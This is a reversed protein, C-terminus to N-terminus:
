QKPEPTNATVLTGIVDEEDPKYREEIMLQVGAICEAMDDRALGTAMGERYASTYEEFAAEFAQLQEENLVAYRKGFGNTLADNLATVAAYRARLSPILKHQVDVNPEDVRAFLRTMEIMQQYAQEQMYDAASAYKRQIHARMHISICTVLVLALLVGGAVAAARVIQRNKSWEVLKAKVTEM